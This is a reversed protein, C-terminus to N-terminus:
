SGSGRKLANFSTRASPGSSDTLKRAIAHKIPGVHEALQLASRRLLRAPLRDDTYLSVIANTGLYLPLSVRRHESEYRRLVSLSGIDLRRYKARGLTAALVEAGYLGLNFGHATVPHMGVAADGLLAVRENVFHDAYVAVLPYAHRDGVLEFHGLRAGFQLEASAAFAQPTMQLLAEARDNTVTIVASVHRNNLPLIALTRGYDFCEYAVGDPEGTHSLRCVIVTRGFDRAQAGMGLRQRTQSFRSDAAVLLRSEIQEGTPLTVHAGHQDVSIYRAEADSVLRVAQHECAADFAAKRIVHNPVLYGLAEVGSDTPEFRLYRPSTGNLVRASRIPSIAEHAFRQWIGLAQLIDVSRHTLAIERGDVRPNALAELPQREVLTVGFGQQALATALTLGAPGAGIITIDCAVTM